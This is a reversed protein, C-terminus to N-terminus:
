DGFFLIYVDNEAVQSSLNAMKLRSKVIHLVLMIFFFRFWYSKMQSQALREWSGNIVYEYLIRKMLNQTKFVVDVHCRIFM